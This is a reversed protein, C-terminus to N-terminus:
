FKFVLGLTHHRLFGTDERHFTRRSAEVAINEAIDYGAGYGVVYGRSFTDQDAWDEGMGGLGFVYAKGYRVKPKAILALTYSNEERINYPASLPGTAKLRDAGEYQSLTFLGGVDLSFYEFDLLNITYTIDVHEGANICRGESDSHGNTYGYGLSLEGSNADWCMFLICLIVFLIVISIEKIKYM